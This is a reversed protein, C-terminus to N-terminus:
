HRSPHDGEPARASDRSLGPHVFGAAGADGAKGPRLYKTIPIGKVLEMVFYPRGAPLYQLGGEGGAGRGDSPLPHGSAPHPSETAGADLVKAINPHDMLALAQREAEFRAVVQRTDMGLKIIKLAVRRKVPERQEAVYVVGFGGEGIKELIKYRGIQTGPGEEPPVLATETAPAAAQPELFSDPSDHAALLEEIRRRLGADGGCERELFAAREAAPKMLALALLAEELSPNM